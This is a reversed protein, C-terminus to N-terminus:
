SPVLRHVLGASSGEETCYAEFIERRTRAIRESVRDERSLFYEDVRRHFSVKKRKAFVKCESVKRRTTGRRKNASRELKSDDKEVRQRKERSLM